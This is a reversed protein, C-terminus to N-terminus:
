TPKQPLYPVQSKKNKLEPLRTIEEIVIDKSREDCWRWTSIEAKREKILRLVAETVGFASFEVGKNRLCEELKFTSYKERPKMTSLIEQYLSVKNKTTTM